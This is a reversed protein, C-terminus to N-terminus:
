GVLRELVEEEAKAIKAWTFREEVAKRGATALHAAIAPNKALRKIQSAMARYDRHEVVIGGNTMRAVEKVAPIDYAIFPTGCALAEILVLGFGEESSPLLLATSEKMLRTKETESVKGLYKIYPYTKVIEKVVREDPGGTSVIVLELGSVWPRAAVTADVADLIHKWAKFSGAYMVQNAKKQPIPVADIAELDVGNYVVSLKDIPIHKVIKQKTSESVTFVHDYHMALTLREMIRGPIGNYSHSRWHKPSIIDHFIAVCPVKGRAALSLSLCPRYQNAYLVDALNHDIYWRAMRYMAIMSPISSISAGYKFADDMRRIHVGDVKSYSPLGQVGEYNYATRAALVTVQHGLKVLEKAINLQRVEGGSYLVPYFLDSAMLINM